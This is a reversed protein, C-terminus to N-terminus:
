SLDGYPLAGHTLEETLEQWRRLLHDLRADGFRDAHWLRAEHAAAGGSRLVLHVPADDPDRGAGPPAVTRLDLEALEDSLAAVRAEPLRGEWERAAGARRQVVRMAGSGEVLLTVEGNRFDEQGVSLELASSPDQLPPHGAPM